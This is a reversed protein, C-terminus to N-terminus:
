GYYHKHYFFVKGACNLIFKPNFEQIDRVILFLEVLPYRLLANRDEIRTDPSHVTKGMQKLASVILGGIWGKGGYVVYTM